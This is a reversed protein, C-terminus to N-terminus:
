RRCLGTVCTWPLDQTVVSSATTELDLGPGRLTTQAMTKKERARDRQLWQMICSYALVICSCALVHLTAWQLVLALQSYRERLGSEGRADYRNRQVYHRPPAGLVM